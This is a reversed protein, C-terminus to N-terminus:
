LHAALTGVAKMSSTGTATGDTTMNQRFLYTKSKGFPPHPENVTVLAHNEVAVNQANKSDRIQVQLSM